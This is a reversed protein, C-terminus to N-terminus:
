EMGSVKMTTLRWAISNIYPSFSGAMAFLNEDNTLSGADPLDRAVDGPIQAMENISTIIYQNNDILNIINNKDSQAQLNRPNIQLDKKHDPENQAVSSGDGVEQETPPVGEFTPWGTSETIDDISRSEVLNTNM